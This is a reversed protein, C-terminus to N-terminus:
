PGNGGSTCANQTASGLQVYQMLDWGFTFDSGGGGTDQVTLSGTTIAQNNYLRQLLSAPGGRSPVRGCIGPTVFNNCLRSIM